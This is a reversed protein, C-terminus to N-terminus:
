YISGLNASAQPHSDDEKLAKKFGAIAAAQENEDLDVVALNNLLSANTPNKELARALLLRAAGSRGQRLHDLALANLAVPDYSNTGLIKAAEEVIARGRGARLAQSLAQYKADGSAREGVPPAIQNSAAAGGPEGGDESVMEDIDAGAQRAM